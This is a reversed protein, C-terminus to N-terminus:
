WRWGRGIALCVGLRDQVAADKHKAAHTLTRTCSSAGAVVEKRELQPISCRLPCHHRHLNYVM